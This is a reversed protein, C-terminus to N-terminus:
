DTRMTPAGCFCKAPMYSAMCVGEWRYNNRKAWSPSPRTRLLRQQDKAKLVPNAYYKKFLQISDLADQCPDHCDEVIATFYIYSDSDFYKRDSTHIGIVICNYIIKNSLIRIM